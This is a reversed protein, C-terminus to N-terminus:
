RNEGAYALQVCTDTEENRLEGVDAEIINQRASHRYGMAFLSRFTEELVKACVNKYRPNRSKSDDAVFASLVPSM